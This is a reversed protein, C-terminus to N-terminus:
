PAYRASVVSWKVSIPKQDGCKESCGIWKKEGPNVLYIRVTDHKVKKWKWVIKVAAEVVRDENYNELVVQKGCGDSCPEGRYTVIDEAADSALTYEFNEPVTNGELTIFRSADVYPAHLEESKANVTTVMPKEQLEDVENEMPKDNLVPETELVNVDVTDILTLTDAPVSPASVVPQSESSCASCGALLVMSIIGILTSYKMIMLNNNLFVIKRMLFAGDVM